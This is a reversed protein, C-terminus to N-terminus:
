RWRLWTKPGPRKKSTGNALVSDEYDAPTTRGLLLDEAAQPMSGLLVGAPIADQPEGSVYRQATIQGSVGPEVGDGDVLWSMMAVAGYKSLRSVLRAVKDVKPPLPRTDALLAALEDEDSPHVEVPM